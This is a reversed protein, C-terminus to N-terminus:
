RPSAHLAKRILELGPANICATVNSMHSHTGLTYKKGFRATTDPRSSWGFTFIGTLDRRSVEVRLLDKPIGESGLIAALM